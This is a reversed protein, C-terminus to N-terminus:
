WIQCYFEITTSNANQLVILQFLHQITRIGMFIGCQGWQAYLRDMYSYNLRMMLLMSESYMEIRERGEPRNFLYKYLYQVCHGSGSYEVNIHSDWDMIMQLNYPLVKLDDHHQRQYVVRDTLQDVYTENITETRSYGCRCRDSINNKCGSVAIACNHLIISAFWKLLRPRAKYDDRLENENDCWHINQFEEGEFQPL